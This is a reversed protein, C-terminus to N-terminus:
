WDLQILVISIDLAMDMTTKNSMYEYFHHLLSFRHMFLAVSEFIMEFIRLQQSVDMYSTQNVVLGKRLTAITHRLSAEFTGNIYQLINMNRQAASASLKGSQAYNSQTLVWEAFSCVDHFTVMFSTEVFALLLDIVDLDLIMQDRVITFDFQMGNVFCAKIIKLMQQQYKSGNHVNYISELTSFIQHFIAKIQDSEEHLTQEQVWEKSGELWNKISAAIAEDGHTTNLYNSCIELLDWTCGFLWNSVSVYCTILSDHTDYQPLNYFAFIQDDANQWSLHNGLELVHDCKVAYLKIRTKVVHPVVSMSPYYKTDYQVISINRGMQQNIRDIVGRLATIDHDYLFVCIDKSRQQPDSKWEYVNQAILLQDLLPSLRDSGRFLESIVDRLRADSQALVTRDGSLMHLDMNTEVIDMTMKVYSSLTSYAKFLQAIWDQDHAEISLLAVIHEMQRKRYEMTTEFSCKVLELLLRMVPM